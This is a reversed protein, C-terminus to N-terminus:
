VDDRCGGYERHRIMGFSCYFSKKLGKHLQCAYETETQKVAGNSTEIINKSTARQNCHQCKM